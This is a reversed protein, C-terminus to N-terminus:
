LYEISVPMWIRYRREIREAPTEDGYQVAVAVGFYQDDTIANLQAIGRRESSGRTVAAVYVGCARCVMFDATSHGFRYCILHDQDAIQITLMGDPDSVARAGHKRCFTCQCARVKIQRPDIESELVIRINGCHCSGAHKM